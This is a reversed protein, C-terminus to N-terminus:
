RSGVRLLTRRAVGRVTGQGYEFSPDGDTLVALGVRQSGHRLLSIQHVIWAGESPRWGGKFYLAWGRPRVRPIGWRQEAVISALLHLAYARHRPVVLREISRFFAAQDAASILTNGWAPDAGFDHMHARRALRVLGDARVIRYVRSAADNDSREIMPGLLRRSDRSLAHSRIGGRDLYAVLLMAKVVSASRYVRHVQYGRLTGREDVVAFSVRGSRDRAYRIASHVRRPWDYSPRHHDNRVHARAPGAAAVGGAALV